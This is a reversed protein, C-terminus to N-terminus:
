FSRRCAGSRRRIGDFVGWFIAKMNSLRSPAFFLYAYVNGLWYWSSRLSWRLPVDPLQIMLVYNRFRYYLRLPSYLNYPKWGLLWIRFSSDGLRHSLYVTSTGYIRMGHFRARHCWETDVDDIFFDERMLGVIDFAHCPILSGSTITTVVELWPVANAAPVSKYFYHGPVYAQFNFTKGTTQDRYAPCVCGVNIGQEVLRQYCAALGDIMYEDPLSDQDSLYVFGFGSSLAKEIGYNLAKGIGCNGGIRHINLSPYSNTLAGLLAVHEKAVGPTNDVLLMADVQTSLAGLLSNIDESEPHFTVVIGLIRNDKRTMGFEGDNQNSSLRSSAYAHSM